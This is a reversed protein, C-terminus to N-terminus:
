NHKEAESFLKLLDTYISKWNALEKQFNEFNGEDWYKNIRNEVQNFQEHQKLESVLPLIKDSEPDGRGTYKPVINDGCLSFRYGCEFLKGVLVKATM